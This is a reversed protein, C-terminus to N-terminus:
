FSDYSFPFSMNLSELVKTTLQNPRSLGPRKVVPSPTPLSSSRSGYRRMKNSPTSSGFVPVSRPRGVSFNLEHRTEMETKISVKM